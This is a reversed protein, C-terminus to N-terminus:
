KKQLWCHRLIYKRTLLSGALFGTLRVLFFVVQAVDVLRVVYDHLSLPVTGLALCHEVENAGLGETLEVM